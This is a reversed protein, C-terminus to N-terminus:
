VAMAPARYTGGHAILAWVIRAMKNALAVTVLMRPTRALLSKLWPNAPARDRGAAKAASSAGVIGLFIDLVLGSGAKNVVKSALFGAILGVVAM